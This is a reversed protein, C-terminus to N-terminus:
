ILISMKVLQNLLCSKKQILFIKKFLKIILNFKPDSNPYTIIANVKSKKVAKILHKVQIELRDIELTVPHFTLLM